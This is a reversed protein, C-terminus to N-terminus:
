QGPPEALRLGLRDYLFARGCVSFQLGGPGAVLDQLEPVGASGVAAAPLMWAPVTIQTIAHGLASLQPAPLDLQIGDLGLRTRAETNLEGPVADRWPKQWDISQFLATGRQAGAQALLAQRHAPWSGGLSSALAELAASGVRTHGCQNNDGDWRQRWAAAAAPETGKSFFGAGAKGVDHLFATATLRDVDLESLPRGALREMRRRWVPLLMLARTVAAVDICHAVLSLRPASSVDPHGRDLKGWPEIAM